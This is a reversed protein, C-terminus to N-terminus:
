SLGVWAGLSSMAVLAMGLQFQGVAAPQAHGAAGGGSPPEMMKRESKVVM